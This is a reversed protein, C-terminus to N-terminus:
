SSYTTTSLNTRVEEMWGFNDLEIRIYPEDFQGTINLFSIETLLLVTSIVDCWFLFSGVHFPRRGCLNPLHAVGADVVIGSSYSIAGCVHFLFYNAEADARMCIDVGFFVVAVMLVVDVAIDGDKPVFLDRLQAGFLLIFSFCILALKWMRANLLRWLLLKRDNPNYRSCCRAQATEEHIIHEQAQYVHASSTQRISPASPYSQPTDEAYDQNRQGMVGRIFTMTKLNNISTRFSSRAVTPSRKHKNHSTYDYASSSTQRLTSIPPPPIDMDLDPENM